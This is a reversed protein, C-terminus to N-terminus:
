GAAERMFVTKLMWASISRVHSYFVSTFGVTLIIYFQLYQFLSTSLSVFFVSTVILMLSFCCFSSPSSCAWVSFVLRFSFSCLVFNFILFPLCCRCLFLHYFRTISLFFCCPIFYSPPSLRTFVVSFGRSHSPFISKMVVVFSSHNWLM